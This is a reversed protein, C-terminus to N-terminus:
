REHAGIEFIIRIFIAVESRITTGVNRFIELNFDVLNRISIVADAIRVVEDGFQTLNAFVELTTGRRDVVAAVEAVTQTATDVQLTFVEVVRAGVLQVVAHAFDHQGLIHALLLHNCFGARTLVTHCHGGRGGVEAQGAVDVHTFHINGLLVGVDQAHLDEAGVHNGHRM